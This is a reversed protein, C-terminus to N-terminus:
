TRSTTVSLSLRTRTPPNLDGPYCCFLRQTQSTVREGASLFDIDNSFEARQDAPPQVFLSSEHNGFNQQNKMTKPPKQHNSRTEEGQKM